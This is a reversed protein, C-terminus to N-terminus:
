IREKDIGRAALQVLAKWGEAHPAAYGVYGPLHPTKAVRELLTRALTPDEEAVVVHDEDTLPEPLDGTVQVEDYGLWAALEALREAARGNGLVILRRPM